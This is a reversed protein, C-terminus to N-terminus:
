WMEAVQAQRSRRSWPRKLLPRRRPRRDRKLRSPLFQHPPTSSEEVTVVVM